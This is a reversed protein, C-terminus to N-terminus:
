SEESKEKLQKIMEEKMKPWVNNQFHTNAYTYAMGRVIGTNNDDIAKSLLLNSSKASDPVLDLLRDDTLGELYETEKQDRKLEVESEIETDRELERKAEEGFTDPDVFKQGLLLPELLSAVKIKRNLSPSKPNGRIMTCFNDVSEQVDLATLYDKSAQYIKPLQSAYLTQNFRSRLLSQLESVNINRWEDPFEDAGTTTTIKNSNSSSSSITDPKTGTETYWKGEHGRFGSGDLYYRENRIIDQFLADSISYRTWGGRGPKHGESILFGKQRLRSLSIKITTKKISTVSELHDLTLEQTIEKGRSRCNKYVALILSRQTGTLLSLSVEGGNKCVTQIGNTDRKTYRKKTRLSEDEESQCGNTYRKNDKQKGNKTSEKIRTVGKKIEVPKKLGSIKAQEATVKELDVTDKTISEATKSLNEPLPDFVRSHSFESTKAGRNFSSRPGRKKAYTKFEGKKIAMEGELLKSKLSKKTNPNQM